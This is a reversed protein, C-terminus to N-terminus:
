KLLERAKSNDACVAYIVTTGSTEVFGDDFKSMEKPKYDKFSSKRQEMRNTLATEVRKAADADKATFVGFEDPIAGTPCIYAAFETVDASDVGMIDKLQDATVARSDYTNGDADTFPVAAILESAKDAATKSSAAAVSSGSGSGENSCGTFSVCLAAAALLAVIRKKM